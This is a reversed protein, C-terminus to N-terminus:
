VWFDMHGKTAGQAVSMLVSGSQPLVVSGSGALIGTVIALHSGVDSPEAHVGCCMARLHWCPGLHCDMGIVSAHGKFTDPTISLLM